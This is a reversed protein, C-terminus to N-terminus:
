NTAMRELAIHRVYNFGTHDDLGYQKYGLNVSAVDGYLFNFILSYDETNRNKNYYDHIEEFKLNHKLSPDNITNKVVYVEQEIHDQLTKPKSNSIGYLTRYLYEKTRLNVLQETYKESTWFYPSCFNRAILGSIKFKSEYDTSYFNTWGGKLDDAINLVVQFDSRQTNDMRSNFEAIVQEIITEAEITELEEIKAVIHEKAMPNFGSIPLKMEGKTGGQLKTLYEEFRQGSVPKLYFEKMESLIPRLHFKM